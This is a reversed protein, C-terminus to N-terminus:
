APARARRRRLRGAMQRLDALGLRDYLLGILLAAPLGGAVLLLLGQLAPRLQHLATVRDLGQALKTALILFQGRVEISM